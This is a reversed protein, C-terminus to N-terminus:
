LNEEEYISQTGEKEFELTGTVVRVVDCYEYLFTFFVLQRDWEGPSIIKQRKMEFNFHQSLLTEFESVDNYWRVTSSKKPDSYRTQYSWGPKIQRWVRDTQSFFQQASKVPTTM